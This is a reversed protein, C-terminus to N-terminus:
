KIDSLRAALQKIRGAALEFGEVTCEPTALVYPHPPSHGDGSMTVAFMGLLRLAEGAIARGIEDPESRRFGCRGAAVNLADWLLYADNSELVLDAGGEERQRASFDVHAVVENGRVSLVPDEDPLGVDFSPLVDRM